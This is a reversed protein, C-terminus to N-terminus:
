DENASTRIEVYKRAADYLRFEKQMEAQAIRIIRDSGSNRGGYVTGGELLAVVAGYTNLNTHADTMQKLAEKLTKPQKM